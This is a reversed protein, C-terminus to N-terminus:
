TGERELRRREVEIWEKAEKETGFPKVSIPAEGPKAIEVFFKGDPLPLVAYSTAPSSPRQGM